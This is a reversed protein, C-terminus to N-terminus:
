NPISPSSVHYTGRVAEGDPSELSAVCSRLDAAVGREDLADAPMRSVADPLLSEDTRREM